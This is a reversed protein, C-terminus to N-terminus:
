FLCVEGTEDISLLSSLLCSLNFPLSEFIKPFNFSILNFFGDRFPILSGLDGSLLFGLGNFLTKSKKFDLIPLDDTWPSSTIPTSSVFLSILNAWTFVM